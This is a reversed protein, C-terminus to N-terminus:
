CDLLHAVSLIVYIGSDQDGLLAQLQLGALQLAVKDNIPFHDLHVVCYVAQGYHLKIEAPDEPM